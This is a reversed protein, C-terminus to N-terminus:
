KIKVKSDINVTEYDFSNNINIHKNNKIGTFIYGLHNNQLDYYSFYAFSFNKNSVYGYDELSDLNLGKLYDINTNNVLIYNSIKDNNKLENAINLYKKNLLVFLKYGKKKLEKSLYEFDIIAEISGLYKNDEIIASIAKINLRKGLEISVLPQKSEKVKVLGQRFSALPVDKINIDWSRLYTTLNKNHIQIEFNSDQLQKLSKIKRNVIEFSEQRDQKKFSNIIEKDESLLIALSLAYRKQEEFLNKTTTLSNELKNLLNNSNNLNNLFYFILVVFFSTIFLIILLYKNPKSNLYRM